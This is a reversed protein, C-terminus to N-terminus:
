AKRKNGHSKVKKSPNVGYLASCGSRPMFNCPFSLSFFSFSKLFNKLFFVFIHRNVTSKLGNLNYILSFRKALSLIGFDSQTLFHAESMFMRIVDLFSLFIMCEILIVVPGGVLILVRRRSLWNLHVYVM